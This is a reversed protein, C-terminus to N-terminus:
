SKPRQQSVGNWLNAGQDLAAEMIKAAVPYDVPAWPMTMGTTRTLMM